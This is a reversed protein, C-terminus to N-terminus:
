IGDNKGFDFADLNEVLANLTVGRAAANNKAEDIAVDSLDVGTVTWGPARLNV